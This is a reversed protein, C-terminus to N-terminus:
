AYSVIDLPFYFSERDASGYLLAMYRAYPNSHSLTFVRNDAVPIYGYLYSSNAIGTWDVSQVAVGNLSLGDAETSKM